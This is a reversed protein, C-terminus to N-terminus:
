AGAMRGVLDDFRNHLRQRRGTRLARHRTPTPAEPDGDLALVRAVPAIEDPVHELRPRAATRRRAAVAIGRDPLPVAHTSEFEAADFDGFRAKWKIETVM